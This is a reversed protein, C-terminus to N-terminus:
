PVDPREDAVLEFRDIGIELGSISDPFHRDPRGADRLTELSDWFTLVVARRGSSAALAVAGKSGPAANAAPVVEDRLHQLALRVSETSESEVNLLLVWTGSGPEPLADHEIV